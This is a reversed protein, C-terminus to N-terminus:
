TLASLNRCMGVLNATDARHLQILDTCGLTRHMDTTIGKTKQWLIHRKTQHLGTRPHWTPVYRRYTKVHTAATASAAGAPFCVVHLYVCYCTRISELLSWNSVTEPHSFPGHVSQDSLIMTSMSKAQQPTSFLELRDQNDFGLSLSLSLGHGQGTYSEIGAAM